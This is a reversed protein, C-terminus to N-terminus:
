CVCGWGGSPSTWTPRSSPTVITCCIRTDKRMDLHRIDIGDIRISGSLSSLIGAAVEGPHEQRGRVPGDLLISSKLSEICGFGCEPPLRRGFACRYPTAGHFLRIGAAGPEVFLRRSDGSVASAGATAGHYSRWASYIKNRGTVARAIKIAAEISESGTSTFFVHDLAPPTRRVVEVALQSRVPTALNPAVYALLEMQKRMAKLIYPHAHGANVNM